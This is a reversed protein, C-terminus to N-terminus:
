VSHLEPAICRLPDYDEGRMEMYFVFRKQFCYCDLRFVSLYLNIGLFASSNATAETYSFMTWIQQIM